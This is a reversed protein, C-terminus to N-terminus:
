FYIRTRGFIYPKVFKNMADIFKLGKMKMLNLSYYQCQATDSRVHNTSKETKIWNANSTDFTM